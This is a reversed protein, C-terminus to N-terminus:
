NNVKTLTYNFNSKIPNMKEDLMIIKDEGVKLFYQRELAPKDLNLGYITANPDENNGRLYDWEGQTTFNGNPQGIYTSDLTYGAAGLTTPDQYLTLKMKIGECDACPITGEFVGLVVKRDDGDAVTSPISPTITAQRESNNHQIFVFGALVIFVIVFAIIIKRNM